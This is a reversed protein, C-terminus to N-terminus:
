PRKRFGYKMDFGHAAVRYKDDTQKPTKDEVLDNSIYREIEQFAIFPEKVRQFGLQKLNPNIEFTIYEKGSWYYHSLEWENLLVIPQKFHRNVDFPMVISTNYFKEYKEVRFDKEFKQIKNCFDAFTWAKNIPYNDEHFTYYTRFDIFPYVNGCFFLYQRCAKHHSRHRDDLQEVLTRCMQQTLNKMTHTSQEREFIHSEDNGYSQASDYYDHFKSIIRM